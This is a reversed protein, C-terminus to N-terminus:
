SPSVEPAAGGLKSLAWRAHLAVVPDDGAALQAIQARIRALTPETLSAAANGAAICANRLLGRWKTRRIASRRFTERFQQETLSLLWEVAPAYLNTRPTFAPVTTAPANRNWPCVDQCIDCGFVHWGIADRLDEPIEGRAEITLYSICRRADM